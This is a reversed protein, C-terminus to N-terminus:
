KSGSWGSSGPVVARKIKQFLTPKDEAKEEIEKLSADTDASGASKKAASWGSDGAKKELVEKKVEDASVAGKKAASWGSDGAKKKLVEPEVTKEIVAKVEASGAGVKSASWGSPSAASASTAAGGAGSLLGAIGVGALMKKLEKKDM